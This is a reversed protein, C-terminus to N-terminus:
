LSAQQDFHAQLVKKFSDKAFIENFSSRFPGLVERSHNSEEFFAKEFERLAHKPTIKGKQIKADIKSLADSFAIKYLLRATKDSTSLEQTDDANEMHATFTESSFLNVVDNKSPTTLNITNPTTHQEFHAELMTQFSDQKIVSDLCNKWKPAEADTVETIEVTRTTGSEWTGNEYEAKLKKIEGNKPNLLPKGRGGEVQFGMLDKFTERTIEETFSTKKSIEKSFLENFRDTAKEPSIKGSEIELDVAELVKSFVFNYFSSANKADSFMKGQSKTYAAESETSFVSVVADKSLNTLEVNKSTVPGEETRQIKQKEQYDLYSLDPKDQSANGTEPSFKTKSPKGAENVSFPNTRNKAGYSYSIAIMEKKDKTIKELIRNALTEKTTTLRFDKPETDVHQLGLAKKAGIETEPNRMEKAITQLEETLEKRRNPPLNSKSIIKTLDDCISPIEQSVHHKKQNKAFTKLVAGVEESDTGKNNLIRTAILITKAEDSTGRLESINELGLMKLTEKPKLSAEKAIHQIKAMLTSRQDESLGKTELTTNILERCINPIDM